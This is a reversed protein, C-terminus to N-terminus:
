QRLAAAEGLGLARDYVRVERMKGRFYSHPGFGIRLPASTAAAIPLAESESTAALKGDVYMRLKSRERVAVIRKWGPGLDHDVSVGEGTSFSYVKGRIENERPHSLVARYCDATSVFMKGQYVTMSSARSWDEVDKIADYNPPDFLRRISTWKDPGDYRFVEARPIAGAYLSGNYLTLGVVETSDGMRGLDIWKGARKVAVKGLPWTGVFWEGQYAGQAHLQNCEKETGFPNGLEEWSKGDFAFVEGQPYAAFLRGDHVGSTHPRGFDGIQRWNQGGDYVYVGGNKGGTHIALAYLKGNFSALSNIRFHEGPQGIDEWEKGGKYRHVHAFDGKNTEDGGHPGATAAYLAGDHVIMAYVGRVKENGIRGCDEWNQGGKFRYVHAWDAEDPADVTGVYLDGNFVTLADSSHCVGGPRGCDLWKGTTANDVGFFLHRTNSESNYGSTNSTFTLNFGRRTAPDFKSVLDGLVDDVDKETYVEAAITFDGDGLKLKPSNAIELYADRGNFEGTKLDVGHNVADLGNESYDRGDGTIKWYGVLGKDAEAISASSAAFFLFLAFRAGSLYM